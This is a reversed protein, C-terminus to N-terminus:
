LLASASDLITIISAANTEAGADLLTLASSLLSTAAHEEGLLVTASQLLAAVSAQNAAPDAELLAVANELLMAVDDHEGSATEEAQPEEQPEAQPEIEVEEGSLIAKLASTDKVPAQSAEQTQEPQEVATVSQGAADYTIEYLESEEYSVDALVYRGDATFAVDDYACPLVVNGHWDIVGYNYDADCVQYLMGGSYDACYISEYGELATDTGDAALIHVEGSLDTYLASAGNFDVADTAITPECTVEGGERVFGQKGDKEVGFYGHANFGNTGEQADYPLYYSKQVREYEAPVVVNGQRDILGEMEGTSVQAYDGEFDYITYFSPEMVVNGQADKLGDQGNERFTTLDKVAYDDDFVYDVTGLPKFDADYTTVVGNSRDEINLCNGVAEADQFNARPLTAVCAGSAMNYVDVTDVLYYADSTWSSYDYNDATAQALTFALAWDTSLFEIDGYQFPIVQEGQASLAGWTNIGEEMSAAVVYGSQIEVSAYADPSFAEGDLTVLRYGDSTYVELLNSDRVLDANQVDGVKTLTCEALALGALAFVFVLALLACLGKKSSMGLVEKWM